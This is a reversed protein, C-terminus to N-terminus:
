AACSAFILLLRPKSVPQLVNLSQSTDHHDSPKETECGEGDERRFLRPDVYDVANCCVDASVILLSIEYSFRFAFDRCFKAINRGSVKCRLM